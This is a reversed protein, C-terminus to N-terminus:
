PTEAVPRPLGRRDFTVSKILAQVEMGPALGLDAVSARTIRARLTAPGSTLTVEAFATEPEADIATITAPLCNRISIGTPRELALAVDRARIRLRVADGPTLYRLMPMFLAAEGLTLRTLHVEPDHGTVNATVFAGAEFRGTLPQLEPSSLIEETPGQAVLRGGDILVTRGALQAVEDIAHTVLITPTRYTEALRALYPMIEAKRRADLGSMPEDLLLLRPKTLLTRALAVRQAEGGSLDRPARALLPALDLTKTISDTEASGSRRAAFALNGAVSLHEFLRTDQFVIGVPRAHPPRNLSRATDLWTESGLTIRGEDPTTLGALIRLLTTKGSGSPGFLATTGTLPTKFAMDLAFDGQTHRAALSLADTM